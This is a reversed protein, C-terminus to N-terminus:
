FEMWISMKAALIHYRQKTSPCTCSEIPFLKVAHANGGTGVATFVGLWARTTALKGRSWFSGIWPYTNHHAHYVSNWSLFYRSCAHQTGASPIFDVLSERLKRSRRLTMAAWWLLLGRKSFEQWLKQFTTALDLSVGKLSYFAQLYYLALVIIMLQSEGTRYRVSQRKLRTLQPPASWM